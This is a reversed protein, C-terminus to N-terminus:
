FLTEGWISLIVWGVERMCDMCSSEFILYFLVNSLYRGLLGLGMQHNNPSPGHLRALCNQLPFLLNIYSPLVRVIECFGVFLEDEEWLWISLFSIAKFEIRRLAEEDANGRARRDTAVGLLKWWVMEAAKVM